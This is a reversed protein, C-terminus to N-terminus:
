TKINSAVIPNESSKPTRNLTKRFISTVTLSKSRRSGVTALNLHLLCCSPCYVILCARFLSEIKDGTGFVFYLHFSGVLCCFVSLFSLSARYLQDHDMSVGSEREACQIWSKIWRLAKPGGAMGNKPLKKKIGWMGPTKAEAALHNMLLYAM